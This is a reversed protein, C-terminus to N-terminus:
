RQYSQRHRPVDLHATRSEFRNSNKQLYPRSKIEVSFYITIRAPKCYRIDRLSIIRMHGRKTEYKSVQARLVASARVHCDKLMATVSQWHPCWIIPVVMPFECPLNLKRMSIYSCWIHVFQMIHCFTMACDQSIKNWKVYWLVFQLQKVLTGLSHRSFMVTKRYACTTM